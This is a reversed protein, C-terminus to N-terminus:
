FKNRCYFEVHKPCNRQGDDPTKWQVWLLTIHWVSIECIPLTVCIYVSSIKIKFLDLIHRYRLANNSGFANPYVISLEQTQKGLPGSSSRIFFRFMDGQCYVIKLSYLIYNQTISQCTTNILRSMYWQQTYLSYNSIISLPVTRFMYLKIGFIFKLFQHM